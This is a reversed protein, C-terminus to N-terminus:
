SLACAECVTRAVPTAIGGVKRSSWHYRGHRFHLALVKQANRSSRGYYPGPGFEMDSKTGEVLLPISCPIDEILQEITHPDQRM